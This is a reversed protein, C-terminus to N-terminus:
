DDKKKRRDRDILWSSGGFAMVVGLVILGIWCGAGCLMIFTEALEKFEIM